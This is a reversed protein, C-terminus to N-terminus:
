EDSWDIDGSPKATAPRVPANARKRAPFAARVRDLLAAPGASERPADAPETHQVPKKDALAPDDAFAREVEEVFEPPRIFGEVLTDSEAGLLLLHEVGDRRILVLRRRADLPLTEVLGLRKQAGRARAAPAFGLKRAALAVLGILALVAMLGFLIRSVDTAEM